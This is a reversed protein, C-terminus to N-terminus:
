NLIQISNQYNIVGTFFNPEKIKCTFVDDSSKLLNFVYSTVAKATGVIFLNAKNM